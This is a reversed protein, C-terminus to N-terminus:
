GQLRLGLSELWAGLRFKRKQWWTLRLPRTFRNPANRDVGFYPEGLLDAATKKSILGESLLDNVHQLRGVRTAPPWHMQYPDDPLQMTAWGELGPRKEDM